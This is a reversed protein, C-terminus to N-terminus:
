KIIKKIKDFVPNKKIVYDKDTFPRGRIKIEKDKQFVATVKIDTNEANETNFIEYIWNQLGFFLILYKIEM